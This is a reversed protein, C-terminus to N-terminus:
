LTTFVVFQPMQLYFGVGPVKGVLSIIFFFIVKEAFITPMRHGNQFLIPVM